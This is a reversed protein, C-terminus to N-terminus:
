SALQVTNGSRLAHPSDHNTINHCRELAETLMIANSWDPRVGEGWPSFVRPQLVREFAQTCMSTISPIYSGNKHRWLHLVRFQQKGGAWNLRAKILRSEIIWIVKTLHARGFVHRGLGDASVTARVMSFRDLTTSTHQHTIALCCRGNSVVLIRERTGNFWAWTSWIMRCEVKEMSYRIAEVAIHDKVFM